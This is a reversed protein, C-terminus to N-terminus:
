TPAKDAHYKRKAAERRKKNRQSQACDPCQIRLGSLLDHTKIKATGGCDCQCIWKRVKESKDISLAKLRGFQRGEIDVSAHAGSLTQRSLQGFNSAKQKAKARDYLKENLEARTMSQLVGSKGPPFIKVQNDKEWEGMKYALEARELDKLSHHRMAHEILEKQELRM